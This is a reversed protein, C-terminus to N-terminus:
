ARPGGAPPGPGGAAGGRTGRGGAGRRAPTPAPTLRERRARGQDQRGIRARARRAGCLEPEQRSGARRRRVASEALVALHTRRSGKGGALVIAPELLDLQARTWRWDAEFIPDPSRPPENKRLVSKGLNLYAVEHASLDAALLVPEVWQRWAAVHQFDDLYFRFAKGYSETTGEDRWATLLGDWIRHESGRRAGLGPNQGLVVLGRYDRGLFSPSALGLAPPSPAVRSFDAGYAERRDWRM